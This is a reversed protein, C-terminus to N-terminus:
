WAVLHKAVLLGIPHETEMGLALRVLGWWTADYDAKVKFIFSVQWVFTLLCVVLAISYLVTAFPNNSVPPTANFANASEPMAATFPNETPKAVVPMPATFPNESESPVTVPTRVAEPMFSTFPSPEPPPKPQSVGYIESEIPPTSTVFTLGKVKRAPATKGDETEVITEPMILGAKALGKLQGGTVEVKEGRENYYYWTSM